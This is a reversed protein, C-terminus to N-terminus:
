LFLQFNITINFYVFLCFICLLVWSNSVFIKIANLSGRNRNSLVLIKGPPQIIMPSDDVFQFGGLHLDLHLFFPDTLHLM